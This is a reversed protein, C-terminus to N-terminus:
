EVREAQGNQFAFEGGAVGDFSLRFALFEIELFSLAPGFKTPRPERIPPTLLWFGPAMLVHPQACRHPPPRIEPEFEHNTLERARPM